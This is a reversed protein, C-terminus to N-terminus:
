CFNSLALLFVCLVGTFFVPLLETVEDVDHIADRSRGLAYLADHALAPCFLDGVVATGRDMGLPAGLLDWRIEDIQVIDQLLPDLPPHPAKKREALM